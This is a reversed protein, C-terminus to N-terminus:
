YSGYDDGQKEKWYAEIACLDADEREEKARHQLAAKWGAEFGTRVKNPIHQPDGQHTLGNWFANFAALMEPDRKTLEDAM